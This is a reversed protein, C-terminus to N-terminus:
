YDVVAIVPWCWIPCSVRVCFSPAHLRIKGFKVCYSHVRLTFVVYSLHAYIIATVQLFVGYVHTKNKEEVIKEVNKVTWYACVTATCFRMSSINTNVCQRPLPTPSPSCLGKPFVFLIGLSCHQVGGGRSYLKQM